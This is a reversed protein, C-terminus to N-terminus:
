SRYRRAMENHLIGVQRRWDEGQGEAIKSCLERLSGLPMTPLKTADFKVGALPKIGRGSLIASCHSGLSIGLEAAEAKLQSHLEEPVEFTLRRKNPM